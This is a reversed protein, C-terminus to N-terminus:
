TYCYIIHFFHVLGVKVIERKETQSHKVVELGMFRLPPLMKAEAANFQKFLHGQM